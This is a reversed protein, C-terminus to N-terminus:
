IGLFREVDWRYYDITGDDNIGVTNGNMWKEFEEWREGVLEKVEAENM